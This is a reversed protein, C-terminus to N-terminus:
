IVNVEIIFFLLEFLKLFMLIGKSFKTHYNIRVYVM